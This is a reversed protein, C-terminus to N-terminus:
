ILARLEDKLSKAEPGRFTGSNSLFYLVLTRGDETGYKEETCELRSMAELYPKAGFNIKPWWRRVDHAIKDLSRHNRGCIKCIM